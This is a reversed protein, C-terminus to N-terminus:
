RQADGDARRVGSRRGPYEPTWGGDALSSCRCSSTSSCAMCGAGVRQVGGRAPHQRAAGPWRDAHVLRALWQDRRLERGDYHHRLARHERHRLFKRGKWKGGSSTATATQDAGAKTLLPNGPSVRVGHHRRHRVPVGGGSPGATGRRDRMQGLTYTLGASIAFIGFMALLNTLPTPNEFPHASNANFFGGGNTGFQKIIEPIGGARARDDAGSWRSQPKGDPGNM